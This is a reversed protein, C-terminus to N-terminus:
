ERALRDFVLQPQSERAPAPLPEPPLTFSTGRSSGVKVLLGHRILSDVLRSSEGDTLQYKECINRRTIGDKKQWLDRLVLIDLGLKLFACQEAQDHRLAQGRLGKQYELIRAAIYDEITTNVFRPLDLWEESALYQSAYLVCASNATIPQWDLSDPDIDETGLMLRTTNALLVRMEGDVLGDEDRALNIMEDIEPYFLNLWLRDYRAKWGLVGAMFRTEAQPYIIDMLGLALLYTNGDGIWDDVILIRQPVQGPRLQAQVQRILEAQWERQESLWALFHAIRLPDSNIGQLNGVRDAKTSAHYSQFKERGLNTKVVPPFPQAQTAKWLMLAAKLPAWGSHMLCVVVDPQFSLVQGVIKRATNWLIDLGANVEELDNDHEPLTQKAM